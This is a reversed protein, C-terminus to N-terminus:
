LFLRLIIKLLKQSNTREGRKGDNSMKTTTILSRPFIKNAKNSTISGSRKRWLLTLSPDFYFPPSM